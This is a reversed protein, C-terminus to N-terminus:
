NGPINSEVSVTAQPEIQPAGGLTNGTLRNARGTGRWRVPVDMLPQDRNDLVHCAQISTHDCDLLDIGIPTGNLINCGTVNLRKCRHLEVLAQRHQPEVGAVTHKGAVADTIELGSIACDRCDALRVGTALETGSRYDPNHGISNSGITLHHCHEALLNRHVGSYIFNGTLSVGRCGALHVNVEQNGIVNGSITWMGPVRVDHDRPGVIRLNAGGASYTAQITNSAITVERVSAGEATSDIYIEATPQPPTGHEGHNNYEIDNSAIQLNRVESREIRLGGLRNYSIHCGTINFQHLNCGDVFIGVGTNHYVHCGHIVTNRNRGRLLVAHRCGRILLGTLTAQMTGILEVGDAEPHRGLIEVCTVTPMRQDAWVQPKVTSPAATGGHSGVIRLAPGPGTMILRATGGSGEMAFRGGRALDVEITRSLLYDGRPLRVSGDAHELAHEIAATDDTRGDGVAGFHQAESVIRTYRPEPDASAWSRRSRRSRKSPLM